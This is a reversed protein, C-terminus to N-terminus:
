PRPPYSDDEEQRVRGSQRRQRNLRGLWGVTEKQDEAEFIRNWWNFTGEDTPKAVQYDPDHAYKLMQNGIGLAMVRDDNPSGHMKGNEDRVFGLLEWKTEECRIDLEHDRVAKNLEAVMLGKSPASTVWGYRNQPKDSRSTQQRTRYLNPYRKRQLAKITAIGSNNSEVAVLAHGYWRGLRDVVETGLLDPDIWGHWKAVVASPVEGDAARIVYACSADGHELGLAVDVGMVYTADDRPPEWLRLAANEDGTPAYHDGDWMWREPPCTPVERLMDSDFVARGSKVFAEDVDRPYEQHLLWPTSAFERQKQEYWADDREHGASWPWFLALFRSKKARAEMYMKYFFNLGQATSLATIKGGVDAIPEISAWAEEPNNFFAWEDLIARYVTMGRAPQQRSPMSLIESSNDFALRQTNDSVKRPGRSKMWDPLRAYGYSAKELLQAAEREGKSLFVETRDGWFFTEWFAYAAVLTSFGLQRAKLIMVREQTEFAVVTDFQADWLKLLIAGRAPHKIFWYNEVFHQFGLVRQAAVKPDGLGFKANPNVAVCKRWELEM